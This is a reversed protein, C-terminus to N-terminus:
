AWSGVYLDTPLHAVFLLLRQGLEAFQGVQGVQVATREPLLDSDLEELHGGRPYDAPHRHGTAGLRVPQQVPARAHHKRLGQAGDAGHQMGALAPDRDPHVDVGSVM